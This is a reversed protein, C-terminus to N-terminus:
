LFDHPRANQPADGQASFERSLIIGGTRFRFRSTLVRSNLVLSNLVRSNLFPAGNIGMSGSSRRQSTSQPRLTASM